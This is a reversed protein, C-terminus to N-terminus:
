QLATGWLRARSIAREIELRAWSQSLISMQRVIEVIGDDLDSLVEEKMECPVFAVRCNCRPCKWVQRRNEQVDHNFRM